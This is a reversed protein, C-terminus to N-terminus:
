GRRFPLAGLTLPSFRTIILFCFVRQLTASKSHFGSSFKSIPDIAQQVEGHLWDCQEAHGTASDWTARLVTGYLRAIANDWSTQLATGRTASPRYRLGVNLVSDWTARFVTGHLRNCQGMIDTISDWTYCQGMYGIASSSQPRCSQGMYRTVLVTTYLRNCRRTAQLMTEHIKSCQGTYGTASDRSALLVTAHLRYCLETCGTANDRTAQLVAEQLRYCQVM